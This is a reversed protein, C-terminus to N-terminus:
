RMFGGESHIVQGTIWGAEDSALFKIVKAADSPKGIRGFPFMTHLSRSIEPTMWGTDTPGPNVANVTIGLPAIEAALTVTLADVAGKTTAYALEGPMPGQSQGSTLNIIRGGAKKKFRKAFQSSLLATAGVNVKFHRDLEEATLNTYDNNTSYAANNVLIDPPGIEQTVQELLGDLGDFRTLDMEVGAAKVGYQLLEEKLRDPESADSGWPMGEDYPAWYTFFVHCGNKAFERCVAAGIGDLRSAGTVLAIKGELQTLGDGRRRSAIRM